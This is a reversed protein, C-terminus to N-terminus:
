SAYSIAYYNLVYNASDTPLNWKATFSNSTKSTIVIPQFLPFPDTVDQMMAVVIYNNSGYGVPLTVTSFTVGNNLIVTGTANIMNTLVYNASDTATNMKVTFNSSASFRIYFRVNVNIPRTENGGANNVTIGTGVPQVYPPGAVYGTASSGSLGAIQTSGNLNALSGGSNGMLGHTHTPDSISHNHSGLTSNQASGVNDGANGGTAAATRSAADPDAGSGDNQGRLFKGRYDPVNFHTGDASGNTSGIWAALEPYDTKLYSTGDCYLTGAPVVVSDTAIIEGIFTGAGNISNSIIPTQFQPSVDTTNQIAMLIGSSLNLQRVPPIVTASSVSNSIPAENIPLTKTPIVYSLKYNATDTPMNWSATFGTTSKAIIEVQQFLPSADVTNELQAFVIFATDPQASSFSIVKNSAGSLINESAATWASGGGGVTDLNTWAGAEYKRFKGLVTNYYVDGDNGAPDGAGFQIQPDLNIGKKIKFFNASM